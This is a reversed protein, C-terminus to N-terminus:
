NGVRGAESDASGTKRKQPINKNSGFNYSLGLTVSRNANDNHYTALVGPINTINGGSFNARFIDRASLKIALKNDLIKKQIGINTQERYRHTFQADRSPSLYFTSLEASWGNSFNFQNNNIKDLVDPEDGM